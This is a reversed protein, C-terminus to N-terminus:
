STKEIKKSKRAALGLMVGAMVAGVFQVWIPAFVLWWSWDIQGTLKLGVFLVFLLHLVNLGAKAEM